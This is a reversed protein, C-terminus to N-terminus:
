AAKDQEAPEFVNGGAWLGRKRSEISFNGVSPQSYGLAASAWRLIADMELNSWGNSRKEAYTDWHRHFADEDPGLVGQKTMHWRAFREAAGFCEIRMREECRPRSAKKAQEAEVRERHRRFAESVYETKKEPKETKESM